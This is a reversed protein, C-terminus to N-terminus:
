DQQEFVFFFFFSSSSSFVKGCKLKQSCFPLRRKIQFRHPLKQYVVFLTNFFFFFATPFFPVLQSGEQLEVVSPFRLLTLCKCPNEARTAPINPNWKFGYIPCTPRDEAVLSKGPPPLAHLPTPKVGFGGGADAASRAAPMGQSPAPATPPRGAGIAILKIPKYRVPLSVTSEGGLHSFGWSCWWVQIATATLWPWVRSQAPHTVDLNSKRATDAFLFSFQPWSTGRLGALSSEGQRRQM